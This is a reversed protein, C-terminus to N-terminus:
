GVTKTARSCRATACKRVCCTTPFGLCMTLWCGTWSRIWSGYVNGSLSDTLRGFLLFCSGAGKLLAPNTPYYSEWGMGALIQQAGAATHFVFRGDEYELVGADCHEPFVSFRGPTFGGSHLDMGPMSRYRYPRTLVGRSFWGGVFLTDNRSLVAHATRDVQIPFGINKVNQAWVACSISLLVCVLPLSLVWRKMNNRDFLKLLHLCLLNCLFFFVLAFCKKV